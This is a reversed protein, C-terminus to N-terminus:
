ASARARDPEVGAITARDLGGDPDRLWLTRAGVPFPPPLERSRTLSRLDAIACGDFLISERQLRTFLTWQSQWLEPDAILIPPVGGRSVELGESQGGFGVPALTVIRRGPALERLIAAFQEPRTSAVAVHAERADVVVSRLPKSPLAQAAAMGVQIRMGQWHGAGPVLRAVFEAAEGGALAHETRNPMRLMLTSGCLSSLGSLAGAVRQATLVCSWGSARGDRLLRTLQDIIAVQYPEPCSTLVSDLDDLLVIREQDNASELPALLATTLFDWLSPLDARVRIVEIGSPAAALAALVGTKGSRAAGVVLLSGHERPRYAVPWQAQDAPVDALAFVIGRANDDSTVIPAADFSDRGALTEIPLQTPLPPLWPKRPKASEHWRELVREVDDRVSLAVQFESPAGGGISVLARGLPRAPLSAASDTGLVAVSDAASTVRLSIRLACNALIGDRVVGAPRQTCLILHVGLSRGRAAIDAFVAHLEPFAEVLAAYEDVVVVLRPFPALPADDVARLGRAALDRERHRLEAALSALVRFAQDADLDTIVGVSHPLELLSGFSAGGKFDVFLFTVETPSRHRAMGLVWSLLLESKGSGTTGGVIAHPGHTVLDLAILGNPGVGVGTSLGPGSESDADIARLDIEDPLGSHATARVGTEVAVEALVEAARTAEERGLLEPRLTLGRLTASGTASLELVDDLDGPLDTAVRATVVRLTRKPGVFAIEAFSAPAPPAPAPPAPAAHAAHPLLTLWEESDSVAVLAWDRPSLSAALQMAIARTISATLRSPGVIGIGSQLVIEVPADVLIRARVALEALTGGVAPDACAAAIGAGDYNVASPREGSGVCVVLEAAPGQWRSMPHDLLDRVRAARALGTREELHAADITESVRAADSDFRRAERRRTRRRDRSADVTSAVAVVPGLGAFVLTFVSRTVAFLILSVVLPAVTAILPFRRPPPLEPPRPAAITRVPASIVIGGFV